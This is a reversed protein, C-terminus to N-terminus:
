KAIGKQNFFAGKTTPKHNTSRGKLDFWRDIKIAGTVTNMRGIATTKEEEDIFEVDIVEPLSEISSVEGQALPRSLVVSASAKSLYARMPAVSSGTGLKGFAGACIEPEDNAAFGYALALADNNDWDMKTYTGIFYWNNNSVERKILSGTELTLESYNWFKLKTDNPIVVVYPANAKPLSSIKQVKAHWSHGEQVVANLKYFDANTKAGSPLQFPLVITAPTNKSFERELEVANVTVGSISVTGSQVDNIKAIAYNATPSYIDIGTTSLQTNKKVVYAFARLVSGIGNADSKVIITLKNNTGYVVDNNAGSMKALTDTSSSGGNLVFITDGVDLEDNFAVYLITGEPATLTTAKNVQATTASAHLELRDVDNDFEYSGLGDAGIDFAVEVTLDLGPGSTTSATYFTLFMNSHTWALLNDYKKPQGNGDVAVTIMRNTADGYVTTEASDVYFYMGGFNSREISGSLHLFYGQPPILQLQERCDWGRSCTTATFNETAGGDDYVKFTKVNSPITLTSSVPSSGNPTPMKVYYGDTADGSLTVADAWATTAAMSLGLVAFLRLFQNKLKM